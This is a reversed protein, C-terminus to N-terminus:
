SKKEERCVEAAFRAGAEHQATTHEWAALIGRMSKQASEFREDSWGEPKDKRIKDWPIGLRFDLVPLRWALFKGGYGRREMLDFADMYGLNVRPLLGGAIASNSDLSDASLARSAGNKIFEEESMPKTGKPLSAAYKAYADKYKKRFYAQTQADQEFRLMRYGWGASKQTAVALRPDAGKRIMECAAAAAGLTHYYKAPLKAPTGDPSWNQALREKLADPIDAKPGLSGPAYLASSDSPAVSAIELKFEEPSLQQLKKRLYDISYRMAAPPPESSALYGKSVVEFDRAYDYRTDEGMERLKKEYKAITEQISGREKEYAARAQEDTRRTKLVSQMVDDHGAFGILRMALNPDGGAEELAAKWAWGPPAHSFKGEGAKDAMTPKKYDPQAQDMAHVRAYFSRVHEAFKPDELALSEFFRNLGMNQSGVRTPDDYSRLGLVKLYHLLADRNKGAPLCAAAAEAKAYFEAAAGKGSLDRPKGCEPIQEPPKVEEESPDHTVFHDQIGPGPGGVSGGPKAGPIAPAMAAYAMVASEASAAIEGYLPAMDGGQLTEQVPSEMAAVAKKAAAMPEAKQGGQAANIKKGIAIIQIPTKGAACLEDWTKQDLSYAKLYDKQYVGKCFAKPDKGSPKEQGKLIEEPLKGKACLADWAEQSLSHSEIYEKQYKERCAAEKEEKKTDDAPKAPKDEAWAACAAALLIALLRM